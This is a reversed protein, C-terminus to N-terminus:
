SRFLDGCIKLLAYDQLDKKGASFRGGWLFVAEDLCVHVYQLSDLWLGHLHHLAQLM